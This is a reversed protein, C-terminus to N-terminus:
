YLKNENGHFIRVINNRHKFIVLLSVIINSIIYEPIMVFTMIVLLIMGGISGVSVMRTALILIVGVIVCVLVIEYNIISIAAITVAVGKGGKFKYYIPYCHGLIAAILFISKEATSVDFNFVNSIFIIIFFSVFVKLIDLTFVVTGLVKGLVRIANTTGANKSGLERIDRGNKIKCVEIAPNISCILYAILFIFIHYIQM